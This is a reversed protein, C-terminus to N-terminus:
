MQPWYMDNGVGQVVTNVLNLNENCCIVNWYAANGPIGNSTCINDDGNNNNNVDVVVDMVAKNEKVTKMKM